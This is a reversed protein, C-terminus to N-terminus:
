KKHHNRAGVESLEEDTFNLLTICPEQWSPDCRHRTTPPAEGCDASMPKRSLPEKTWHRTTLPVMSIISMPRTSLKEPASLQDMGAIQPIKVKTGHQRNTRPSRRLWNWLSRIRGGRIPTRQIFHCSCSRARDIGVTDAPTAHPTPYSTSYWHGSRGGSPSVFGCPGVTRSMSGVNSVYTELQVRFKTYHFM